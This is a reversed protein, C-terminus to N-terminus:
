QERGYVLHGRRRTNVYRDNSTPIMTWSELVGKRYTAVAHIFRGDELDFRKILKLELLVRGTATHRRFEAWVEYPDELVEPLLPYYRSRDLAVHTALAQADVVIDHRYGAAECAYVKSPGGMIEELMGRAEATSGAEPGPLAQPADAPIDKPRGKSEWTERAPLREYKDKSARWEAMVDDAVRAGWSAKGPNYDWGPDIGRPVRIVEGTKRDTYSRMDQPPAQRKVPHVPQAAELADVESADHSVVGCKCGWGNPPYHTNWWPDDAPLVTNYWAMHEPRPNASSSPVYRWYPRAQLVAPSTMSKYHGAAYATSLNTNYITAARWAQGGRPEWGRRQCIGAFEKRFDALTKGEALAKDVAGRMDCLLDQKAAGAVVFARAHQDGWIDDWKATPLNLKSRFAAIAADFPQNLYQAAPGAM